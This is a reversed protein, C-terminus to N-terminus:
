EENQASAIQKQDANYESLAIKYVEFDNNYIVESASYVMGALEVEENTDDLFDNFQPNDGYSILKKDSELDRIKRQEAAFSVKGKYEIERKITIIEQKHEENKQFFKASLKSMWWVLIFTAVAPIILLQSISFFVESFSAWEYLSGLYNNKLTKEADLINKEDTFLLVFLFKWNTISWSIIFYFYMPKFIRENLVESVNNGVETITKKADDITAM